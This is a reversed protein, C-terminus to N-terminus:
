IEPTFYLNSKSTVYLVEFSRLLPQTDARSWGHTPATHCYPYYVSSFATVQSPLHCDGNGYASEVFCDIINKVMAFWLNSNYM